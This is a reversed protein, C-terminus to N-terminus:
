WYINSQTKLVFSIQLKCENYLSWKQDCSTGSSKLNMMFLIQRWTNHLIPFSRLFDFHFSPIEFKEPPEWWPKKATQSRVWTLKDEQCRRTINTSATRSALHHGFSTIDYPTSPFSLSTGLISLSSLPFFILSFKQFQWMCHAWMGNKQCFSPIHHYTSNLIFEFLKSVPQSLFHLEPIM